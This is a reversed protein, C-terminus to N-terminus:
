FSYKAAAEIRDLKGEQGNLLERVGHRYEIGVDFSSVPSYFLNAAFSHASENATLPIQGEGYRVDQFSAMLTSRLKETFALRLAAFGALIRVTELGDLGLVADPAFNLGIYRGIGEGGSMMLRIDHQRNAGFSIKGALSVGYGFAKRSAGGDDVSLQRALGALSFEGLPATYNLRAILDPVRDDDNEVLVASTGTISATEPNEAAVALALRNSLNRTYRLQPQRVFVTGETPGIFDTTEPLAATNQFTTWDQGILLRDNYTIFARRMGPNYGNTTRESGQTGPSTQFDFELHGKVTHEGLPTVTTLWIRTQKAHADFDNGERTGGVPIQQPLYFDRIFSNPAADGSSYRSMIASTKLFGNIRITTAGVRFGEAVKAPAGAPTTATATGPTAARQVGSAPGPGTDQAAMPVASSAPLAASTERAAKLEKVAAELARIRAELEAERKADAFAPSPTLGAIAGCALLLPKLYM